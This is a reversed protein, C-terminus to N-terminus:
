RQSDYLANECNIIHQYMRAMLGILEDGHMGGIEPNFGPNKCQPLPPLIEIYNPVEVYREIEKIEPPKSDKWLYGM